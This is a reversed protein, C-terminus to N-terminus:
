LQEKQTEHLCERVCTAIHRAEVETLHPYCPLNVVERAVQTACPYTGEAFTRYPKLEPLAYGYARDVTIGRDLMRQWFSYENRRPIRITYYAYTATPIVPAPHIGPLGALEQDYIQALRRRKALIQDLKGLQVLGLRAQIDSYVQGIDPPLYEIPPTAPTTKRPGAAKGPRSRSRVQHWLAYPGQRFLIYDIALRSWHRTYPKFRRQNMEQDRYTKIKEYLAASNTAMMGGEGSTLPKGRGFSFLTLDSGQGNDGSSFHLPALASDEIIMIRDDGATSRIAAVDLPYGYMHVALIVRTQPTIAQKLQDLNMNYTDPDIDVFRPRNGTAVITRAVVQCLYAPIIVEAETLELAKFAAVLVSRGYAFALTYRAGAKAAVAAEFDARGPGPRLMALLESRDYYPRYFPIM